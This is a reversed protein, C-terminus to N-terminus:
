MSERSWFAKQSRTTATRQRLSRRRMSGTRGSAKLRQWAEYDSYVRDERLGLSDQRPSLNRAIEPFSARLSFIDITSACRPGTAGAIGAGPAGGVM